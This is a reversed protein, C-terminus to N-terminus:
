LPQVRTSKRERLAIHTHLHVHLTLLLRPAQVLPRGVLAAGDGREEEQVVMGVVLRVNLEPLIGDGAAVAVTLELHAKTKKTKLLAADLSSKFVCLTLRPDMVNQHPDPDRDAPDM